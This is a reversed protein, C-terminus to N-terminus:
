TITPVGKRRWDNARLIRGVERFVQADHADISGDPLPGTNLLLNFGREECYALLGLVDKVSKHQGDYQKDYGWSRPTMTTCIEVPKETKEQFKHEPALFDETGLLGSKYSILCQPQLKRIMAYLEPVRYIDPNRRTTGIGDLWIGAIPGYGTLLERIQNKCFEVYKNFDRKEPPAYFPEPEDYHPRATRGLEDIGLFHPHRWDRGHSYYLFLGLGRKHCAQALEAVLDRKAPSNVSNFDTEKTNWLCFGDHHKTTINIYRMDAALALDAIAEADFNEATFKDKLKSYEAVHIKERFMVWEGRGLLSYVGYHMFLGFRAERFWQLAAARPDKAWLEEYGRLYSPIEGQAPAAWARSCCRGLAAALAGAAGAKLFQRRSVTHQAHREIM